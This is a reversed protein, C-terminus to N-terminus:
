MKYEDLEIFDQIFIIQNNYTWSYERVPYDTFSTVMHEKGDDLSRIVINQKGTYPKLYSIYKGDPSLRFVSEEPIKFFDRIPIQRVEHHKCAQLSCAILPIFLISLHKLM